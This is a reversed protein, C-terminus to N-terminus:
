NTLRTPACPVFVAAARECNLWVDTCVDFTASASVPASLFHVRGDTRGGGSSSSSYTTQWCTARVRKGGKEQGKVIEREMEGGSIV